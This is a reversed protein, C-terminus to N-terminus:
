RGLETLLQDCAALLTDLDAVARRLRIEKLQERTIGAEGARLAKVEHPAAEPKRETNDGFVGGVVEEIKELLSEDEPTEATPETETPTDPTQNEDAEPAPTEDSM